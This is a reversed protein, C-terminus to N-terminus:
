FQVFNQNVASLLLAGICLTKFHNYLGLATLHFSIWIRSWILILSNISGIQYIAVYSQSRLAFLNDLNRLKRSHTKKKLIIILITSAVRILIKYHKKKRCTQTTNIIGVLVIIHGHRYRSALGLLHRVEDFSPPSHQETFCIKHKVIGWVILQQPHDDIKVWDDTLRDTRKKKTWKM